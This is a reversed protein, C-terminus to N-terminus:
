ETAIVLVAPQIPVLLVAVTFTLGNGGQITYTNAGNPNITFNQGACIAGSNVTIIPNPNVTLSSTAVAQSVCGATSTGVVTYIANSPPNVVVSGGQITYTNAGNPNITFNQGVCITGNNVTIIPNPNVTLNINAFTQSLCGATSTGAVTYSTSSAPSITISSATSANSWTYTNAGNAILTATQGVCIASSGSISLVPLPNVNVTATNSTGICGATSTIAVSYNSTLTPSISISSTNAGTSWTFSSIASLVPATSPVQWTPGNTLSATIINGTYDSTTIGSTENFQYYALLGASNGPINISKNAIIQAQTRPVNWIRVEDMSGNYFNPAEGIFFNARGLKFTGLNGSNAAYNVAGTVDLGDVYMKGTGSNGSNWDWVVALHHWVNNNVTATVLSTIYSNGFGVFTPQGGSNIYFAKEGAEWASNSNACVVLGSGIGTTKIWAEITFDSNNLNTINSNTEVYDNNGDFNLANSAGSSFVSLTSSSGLCVSNSSAVIISTPIPNVILNSTAFAQSLCGATSTGVVTYNVNTSPSVVANGGQITYTNAGNPNITFNQGACITGNNVSITPNPNVNVAIVSGAGLCGLSTTISVSYNTSVSPSVVVSNSTSIINGNSWSYAVAVSGSNSVQLTLQSGACISNSSAAISSTQCTLSASGISTFTVSTTIGSYNSLLILYQQGALVPISPQYNGVNGGVPVSGM